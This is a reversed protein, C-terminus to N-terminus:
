SWLRVSEIPENDQHVVTIKESLTGDDLMSFRYTYETQTENDYLISFYTGDTDKAFVCNTIDFVESVDGSYVILYETDNDMLFDFTNVMDVASEEATDSICTKEGCYQMYDKMQSLLQTTAPSEESALSLIEYARQYSIKSFQIANENLQAPTMTAFWEKSSAEDFSLIADNYRGNASLLLAYRLCAEDYAKQAGPYDLVYTLYTKAINPSNELKSLSYEYFIDPREEVYRDLEGSAEAALVAAEYDGTDAAQLLLKGQIDAIKKESQLFGDLGKYMEMATQYNGEEAAKGASRYISLPDLVFTTFLVLAAIVGFVVALYGVTKLRNMTREKKTISVDIRDNKKKTKEAAM